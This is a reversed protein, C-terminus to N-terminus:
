LVIEFTILISCNYSQWIDEIFDSNNIWISFPMLETELGFNFRPEVYAHLGTRIGNFASGWSYIDGDSNGFIMDGVVETGGHDPVGDAEISIQKEFGSGTFM